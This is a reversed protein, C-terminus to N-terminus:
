QNVVVEIPLKNKFRGIRNGINLRLDKINDIKWLNCIFDLADERKKIHICKTDIIFRYISELRTCIDTTFNNDKRIANEMTANLYASVNDCVENFTYLYDSNPGYHFSMKKVSTFQDKPDLYTNLACLSLNIQAVDFPNDTHHSLMVKFRDDPNMRCIANTRKDLLPIDAQDKRERGVLSVGIINGNEVSIIIEDCKGKIINRCLSLEAYYDTINDYNGVSHGTGAIFRKKQLYDQIYPTLVNYFLRLSNCIEVYDKYAVFEKVEDTQIKLIEDFRAEVEEPSLKKFWEVRREDRSDLSAINRPVKYNTFDTIIPKDVSPVVDLIMKEIRRKEMDTANLVVTGEERLDPLENPHMEILHTLDRRVVNVQTYEAGNEQNRKICEDLSATVWMGNEDQYQWEAVCPTYEQMLRIYNYIKPTNDLMM